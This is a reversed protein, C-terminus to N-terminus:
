DLKNIFEGLLINSALAAQVEELVYIVSEIGTVEAFDVEHAYGHEDFCQMIGNEIAKVYYEGIMGNSNYAGVWPLESYPNGTNKFVNILEAESANPDHDINCTELYQKVLSISRGDTYKEYEVKVKSVFEAYEQGLTKM